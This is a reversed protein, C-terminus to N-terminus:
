QRRVPLGSIQNTSGLSSQRVPAGGGVASRRQQDRAEKERECDGTWM